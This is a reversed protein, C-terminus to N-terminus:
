SPSPPKPRKSTVRNAECRPPWPRTSKTTRNRTLEPRQKPKTPRLSGRLACSKCCPKWPQLRSSARKRNALGSSPSAGAPTGTEGQGAPKDTASAFLVKAREGLLDEWCEYQVLVEELRQRGYGASTGRKELTNYKPHRPLSIMNEALDIADSLRGLFALNRILWENNHAYNHIQDPLIGDRMMHAHDVRASAEQQWAADAYRHLKSYTHGPMHWMHAIGPSSQGGLSASVLARAPKEQDWLHIRYHHAPHMPNAAFVQDLIADVAQHSSIPLQKKSDTMWSGNKWIQLALYAKAEVDDPNDQVIAELAQVYKRRRETNDESAHWAALADIWAVERPSAGAKKEAATKIFEKARKENNDNAMAMGWFAMACEPDLKAVQRFSREAEFYWFGHLQAIGQDFYAQAEPVKTTVPFHVNSMGAMLYPKQRPGENFAEGHMSHGPAPADQKAEVAPKAAASGAADNTAGGDAAYTGQVTLAIAVCLLGMRFSM